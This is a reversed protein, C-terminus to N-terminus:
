AVALARKRIEASAPDLLVKTYSTSAKEEPHAAHRQDALRQLAEEASKKAQSAGFASSPFDKVKGGPEAEALRQAQSIDM